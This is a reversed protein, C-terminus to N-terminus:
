FLGSASDKIMVVLLVIDTIAFVHIMWWYVDPGRTTMLRSRNIAYLPYAVIFVLIVAISWGLPSLNTLARIDARKRIGCHWADIFTFIGTLVGIIATRGFLAVMAVSVLAVVLAQQLWEAQPTEPSASSPDTQDTDAM